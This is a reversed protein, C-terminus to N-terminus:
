FQIHELLRRGIRSLLGGDDIAPGDSAFLPMKGGEHQAYTRCAHDHLKRAQEHLHLKPCAQVAFAASFTDTPLKNGLLGQFMESAERAFGDQIIIALAPGFLPTDGFFLPNRRLVARIANELNAVSDPKFHRMAILAALNNSLMPSKPGIGAFMDKPWDNGEVLWDSPHGEAELSQDGTGLDEGKLKFKQKTAPKTRKSILYGMAQGASESLRDDRYRHLIGNQLNAYAALVYAESPFNRDFVPKSKSVLSMFRGIALWKASPPTVMMNPLGHQHIEEGSLFRVISAYCADAIQQNAERHLWSKGVLLSAAFLVFSHDLAGPTRIAAVLKPVPEPPPIVHAHRTSSEATNMFQIDTNPNLSNHHLHTM